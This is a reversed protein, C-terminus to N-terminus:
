RRTSHSPRSDALEASEASEAPEASDAPSLAAVMADRDRRSLTDLRGVGFPPAPDYEMAVAFKHALTPSETEGVFRLALDIGASVGAASWWSGDRETRTTSVEVGLAALQDRHAWHTSGRRGRMDMAQALVVAGTCITLVEASRSIAGALRGLWRADSTLAETGRGGPVVLADLREVQDWAHTAALTMPPSDTAVLGPADAILVCETDRLRSLVEYPGVMDLANMGEFLVFGLRRPSSRDASM